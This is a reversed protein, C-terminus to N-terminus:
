SFLYKGACWLCFLKSRNWVSTGQWLGSTLKKQEFCIGRRACINFDKTCFVRPLPGLSTFTKRTNVIHRMEQVPFHLCPLRCRSLRYYNAVEPMAVLPRSVLDLSSYVTLLVSKKGSKQPGAVGMKPYKEIKRRRKAGNM